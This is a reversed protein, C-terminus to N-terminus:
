LVRRVPPGYGSISTPWEAKDFVLVMGFVVVRMLEGGLEITYPSWDFQAQQGPPTEFRETVKSSVSAAALNKVFRYLASSAGDYGRARLERVIRSGILKEGFYWGRIESEFPVLKPNPKPPRDYKPADQGRLAHRVAKRSVGLERCIARISSGQAHMYRITTWAEM